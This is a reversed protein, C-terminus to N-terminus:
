ALFKCSPGCIIVDPFLGMRPQAQKLINAEEAPPNKQLEICPNSHVLSSDIRWM